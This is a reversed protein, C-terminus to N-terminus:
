SGDRPAMPVKPLFTQRRDGHENLHSALDIGTKLLVLLALAVAAEGTAMVLFGGFIITVHLVVVRKYPGVMVNQATLHTREDGLIFNRVFSVGHSIFLVVLAVYPLPTALELTDVVQDFSADFPDRVVFFLLLFVLHGFMFMGFHILFFPVFAVALWRSLVALRLIGYFGVVGNEAWFLLMVLGLEWGLLLVGALPVVNAAILAM